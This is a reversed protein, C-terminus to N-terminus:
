RKIVNEFLHFAQLKPFVNAHQFLILFGHIKLSWYTIFGLNKLYWLLSAM